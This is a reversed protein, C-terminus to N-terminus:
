DTKICYYNRNSKPNLQEIITLVVPLYQKPMQQVARVVQTAGMTFVSLKGKREVQMVLFKSGPEGQTSPLVAFDILKIEEGLIDAGKIREGEFQEGVNTDVYDTLRKIEEPKSVQKGPKPM